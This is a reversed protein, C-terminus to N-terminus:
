TPLARATSLLAPLRTTRPDARISTSYGEAFFGWQDVKVVFADQGGGSAKQKPNLTTSFYKSTPFDISWTDGAIYAAHSSDLAIANGTNFPFEGNDGGGIAVSWTLGDLQTLLKM